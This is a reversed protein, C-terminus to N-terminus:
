LGKCMPRGGLGALLSMRERTRRKDATRSATAGPVPAESTSKPPPAFRDSLKELLLLSQM